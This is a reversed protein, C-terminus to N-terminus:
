AGAGEGTRGELLALARSLKRSIAGSNAPEPKEGTRECWKLFEIVDRILEEADGEPKHPTTPVAGTNPNTRLDRAFPCQTGPPHQYECHPCNAPDGPDAVPEPEALVAHAKLSPFEWLAEALARLFDREAQTIHLDPATM